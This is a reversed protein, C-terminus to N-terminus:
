KKSKEKKIRTGYVDKRQNSGIQNKNLIVFHQGTKFDFCPLPKIFCSCQHNGMNYICIGCYQNISKVRVLDPPLKIM